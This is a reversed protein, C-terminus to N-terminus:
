TKKRITEWRKEGREKCERGKRVNEGLNGEGEKGFTRGEIGGSREPILHVAAQISVTLCINILMVQKEISDPYIERTLLCSWGTM